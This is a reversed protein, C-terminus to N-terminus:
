RTLLVILGILSILVAIAGFIAGINLRAEGRGERTEVVQQRQGVTQYQAQQLLAIADALPRVTSTLTESATLRTAEATARMAEAAAAVQQGLAAARAEAAAAATQVAGVDVLRVADLRKTELERLERSHKRDSERMESQHKQELRVIERIHVIDGRARDAESNRLDDLRRVAAVVIDEVNKTPDIVPNGAADVGVGPAPKTM